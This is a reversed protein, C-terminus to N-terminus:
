AIYFNQYDCVLKDFFLFFALLNKPMTWSIYRKHNLKKM